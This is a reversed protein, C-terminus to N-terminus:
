DALFMYGQGYVTKINAMPLKKRLRSIILSLANSSLHKNPNILYEIENFTLLRNKHKLFLEFLSIEQDTLKILSNNHRITKSQSNYYVHDYVKLEDCEKKLLKENFLRVEDREQLEQQLKIIPTLDNHAGLMRTPKKGGGNKISIGRCRVWITSGDKHKYRVIQDYPHRSDELHKYFNETAIKLDEAFIIDQWESSLHKKEKPDYGLLEWFRPSMWINEPNELDWYWMGDLSGSQIFEFYSIDTQILKYLEQKLPHNDEFANKM